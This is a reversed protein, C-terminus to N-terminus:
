PNDGEETDDAFAYDFALRLMKMMKDKDKQSMKQRARQLSIIDDTLIESASDSIESRGLLYDISVNFYEAIKSIKDVSPSTGTNWKKISSNGFGLDSELKSISIGKRNCLEKIRQYLINNGM